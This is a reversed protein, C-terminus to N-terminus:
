LITCYHTFFSVLRHSSLELLSPQSAGKTHRLRDSGNNCDLFCDDEDDNDSDPGSGSSAPLAIPSGTNRRRYFLLYAGRNVVRNPDTEMDVSEDDFARWPAHDQTTQPVDYCRSYSVYHGYWTSGRHVVVAYLDYLYPSGDGPGVLFDSMNLCELPYDVHTDIKDRRFVEGSPKSFRKLQIMLVTPLSWIEFKRSSERHVKCTPCKWANSQDLVEPKTLQSICAELSVSDVAANVLRERENQLIRLSPHEEYEIHNPVVQSSSYQGSNNWVLLYNPIRQITAQITDYSQMVTDIQPNIAWSAKFGEVPLLKFKYTNRKHSAMEKFSETVTWEVLRKKMKEEPCSGSDEDEDRGEETKTKSSCSEERLSVNSPQQDLLHKRPSHSDGDGNFKIAEAAPQKSSIQRWYTVSNLAAKAVTMYFREPTLLKARISVVFPIGVPPGLHRECQLKHHEWDKKQCVSNCYRVSYCRTCRKPELEPTERCFSCVRDSIAGPVPLPLRLFQLFTFHHVKEGAAEETLLEYIHFQLAEDLRQCEMDHPLVGATTGNRRMVLIKVNELPVGMCAELQPAHYSITHERHFEVRFWLPKRRPDHPHFFCDIVAGFKLVPVSLFQYPDFKINEKNCTLCKLTSKFLGSFLDYIASNERSRFYEWSQDAVEQVPRNTSEIDELYPKDTIRNLDEHLSDVIFSFAEQADQQGYTSFQENREAMMDRLQSPSFSSRDGKWLGQLTSEFVRAFKGKTGMRNRHNIERKYTGRLFYDRLERTNALCQVVSNLYCSNGLNNLGTLGYWRPARRDLSPSRFLNPLALDDSSTWKQMIRGEDLPLSLPYQTPGPKADEENDDSDYKVVTAKPEPPEQKVDTNITNRLPIAIAPSEVKVDTLNWSLGEGEWPKTVDPSSSTQVEQAQLPESMMETDSEDVQEFYGSEIEMPGGLADVNKGVMAKESEGDVEMDIESKVPNCISSPLLEAKEPTTSSCAGPVTRFGNADPVNEVHKGNAQDTQTIECATEQKIGDSVGPSDIERRSSPRLEVM